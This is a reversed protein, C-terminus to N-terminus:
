GDPGSVRVGLMGIKQKFPAACAETLTSRVPSVMWVERGRGAVM